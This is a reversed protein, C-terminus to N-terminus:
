RSRRGCNTRSMPWCTAARQEDNAQLREAMANFARALARVERPGREAVRASYDGEAVRGAAEMLDGIPM